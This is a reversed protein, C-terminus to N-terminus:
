LETTYGWDPVHEDKTEQQNEEHENEEFIHRTTM